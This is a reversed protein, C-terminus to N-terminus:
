YIGDEDWGGGHLADFDADEVTAPDRDVEQHLDAACHRPILTLSPGPPQSSM